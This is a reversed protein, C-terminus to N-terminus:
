VSADSGPLCDTAPPGSGVATVSEAPWREDPRLFYSLNKWSEAADATDGHEGRFLCTYGGVEFLDYWLRYFRLALPDVERGSLDVYADLVSGDGPDLDWLDREPVAIRASEWDVLKLGSGTAMVNGAHPEGHTIVLRSPVAVVRAWEDYLALLRRVGDANAALLARCREAYPGGAWPQGLADLARQLGDRRPLVLDDVLALGAVVSTSAHLAAVHGAVELRQGMDDYEGDRGAPGGDLHPHVVVSFRGLRATVEGAGGPHPGVVFELGSDALAAAAQFTSRLREYAQDLTDSDSELRGALDDVTLFWRREGGVDVSWHHSGFGVPRYEIHDAAIGWNRRLCQALLGEDLDEPKDFL